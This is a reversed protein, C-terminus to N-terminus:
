IFHLLQWFVCSERLVWLLSVHRKRFLLSSINHKKEDAAHFSHIFGIYIYIYISSSNKTTRTQSEEEEEEEGENKASRADNDTRGDEKRREDFHRDDNRSLTRNNEHM